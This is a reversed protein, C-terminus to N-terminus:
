KGKKRHAPRVLSDTEYIKRGIITKDEGRSARITCVVGKANLFDRFAEMKVIDSTELSM